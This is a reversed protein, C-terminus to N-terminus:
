ACRRVRDAGRITAAGPARVAPRSAARTRRSRRRALQRLRRTELSTQWKSMHAAHVGHCGRNEEERTAGVPGAREISSGLSRPCGRLRPSGRNRDIPSGVDVPAGDDCVRESIAAVLGREDIERARDDDRAGALRDLSQCWEISVLLDDRSLDVSARDAALRDRIERRRRQRLKAHIGARNCADGLRAPEAERRDGARLHPSAGGRTARGRPPIM